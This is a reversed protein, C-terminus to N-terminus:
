GVKKGSMATEFTAQPLLGLQAFLGIFDWHNYGEIIQGDAVRILVSGTVTIPAGSQRCKARLTCLGALWGDAEVSKDISIAIDSILGLLAAQFPKFDEPGVMANAGLGSVAGDPTLLEDIAKPDEETWVRHFWTELLQQATTM